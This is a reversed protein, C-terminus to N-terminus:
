VCKISHKNIIEDDFVIYLNGRFFAKTKSNIIAYNNTSEFDRYMRVYPPDQDKVDAWNQVHPSWTMQIGRSPYFLELHHKFNIRFNEFSELSFAKISM